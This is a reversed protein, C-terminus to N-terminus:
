YAIGVTGVWREDGEDGEVEVQYFYVGPPLLEGSDDTGDWRGPSLSSSGDYRGAPLRGQYLDRLLAGGPSFIRVSVHVDEVKALTFAITTGDNSGDGNPTFIRPMAGVDLLVRDLVQPASVLWTGGERTDEAVNLPNESGPGLLQAYFAHSISYMTTRFHIVLQADQRLPPDFPIELGRATMGAGDLDVVSGTLGEVPADGELMAAGPVAIIVREAGTNGPSFRVDLAYSFTTDRGMEVAVPSIRGWAWAAPVDDTSFAVQISRFRPTVGEERSSLRVRYQLFQAPEPAEISVGSVGYEGTWPSWVTGDASTRFQLEVSTGEPVDAEWTVEGINKAKGSAGLDLAESALMGQASYGEGYVEMEAVEPASIGDIEAIVVRVYRTLVPHFRVTTEKYETIGHLVAVESWRFQDDSVEVSYGRLSNDRYTVKGKPAATIVRVGSVRRVERLDISVFKNLCNVGARWTSTLVGDNAETHNSPMDLALNRGEIRSLVIGGKPSGIDTDESFGAVPDILLNTLGQIKTVDMTGAQVLPADVWKVEEPRDTSWRWAGDRNGVKTGLRLTGAELDVLLGNGNGEGENTVAVLIENKGKKVSLSYTEMTTWDDDSGVVKGNFWLEYRDAATLRIIGDGAADAKFETHYYVTRSWTSEEWADAIVAVPTVMLVFIWLSVGVWLGVGVQRYRRQMM